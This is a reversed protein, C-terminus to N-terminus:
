VERGLFQRLRWWVLTISMPRFLDGLPIQGKRSLRWALFLASTSYAVLSTLAAGLIGLRPLFVALGVFTVGFALIEAKSVEGPMAMGKLGTGLVLGVGLFVTAVSLLEAPLISPSFSATYLIPIAFPLALAILVTAALLMSLNMRAYRSIEKKKDHVEASAIVPFSVIRFVMSVIKGAGGVTAAVSYYGLQAPSLFASMLLQDMQVNLINAIGGVHSRLGYAIISKMQHYAGGFVPKLKAIILIISVCATLGNALLLGWTLNAVSVRDSLALMIISGLYSVTVLVRLVNYWTLELVAQLASMSYSTLLNLPIFLLYFRAADVVEPRHQRLVVPILLYGFIMLLVAQPGVLLYGAGMTRSANKRDSAVFYTISEGVGLNGVAALLAPWLFVAVLEGKGEPGLLRAVTIGTVISLAINAFSAGLTISLGKVYVSM